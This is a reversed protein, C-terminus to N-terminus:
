KDEEDDDSPKSGADQGNRTLARSGPPLASGKGPDADKGNQEKVM